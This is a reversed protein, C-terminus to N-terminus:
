NFFRDEFNNIENLSSLECTESIIKLLVLQGFILMLSVFKKENAAILNRGEKNKFNPIFIMDM